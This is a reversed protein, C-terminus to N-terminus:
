VLIDKGWMLHTNTSFFLMLLMSVLSFDIQQWFFHLHPFIWTVFHKSPPPTQSYSCYCQDKGIILKLRLFHFYLFSPTELHLEVASSAEAQLHVEPLSSNVTTELSLANMLHSCKSSYWSHNLCLVNHVHSKGGSTPCSAAASQAWFIAAHLLPPCSPAPLLCRKLWYLQLM